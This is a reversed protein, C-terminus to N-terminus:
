HIGVDSNYHTSLHIAKARISSTDNACSNETEKKKM